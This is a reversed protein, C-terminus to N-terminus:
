SSRIQDALVAMKPLKLTKLSVEQSLVEWNFQSCFIVAENRLKALIIRACINRYEDM